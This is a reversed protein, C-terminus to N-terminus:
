QLVNKIILQPTSTGNWVNINLQAILDISDGVKIQKDLHGQRFAIANTGPEFVLKLHDQNQGLLRKQIVKLKKFYFIPHPNGLGFPELKEILRCNKISLASLKMEADVEISAEPTYDTLKKNIFTTLKKQLKKLNETKISFGAAQSHGGLDIFLDSFQRLAEIINLEPISRCSGKALGDQTSVAIAPLFYDQTLRGAILGIIGSHFSKDIVFLLKQSSDLNDKALQYSDSQLQQRDSNLDQSIQAYKNALNPSTACLLRLADMPNSLRGVANIRPGLTFGLSGSTISDPKLNSIAMLKQLGFNKTKSFAKLGHAVISRNIDTLPLCDTVTALAALALDAGPNIRNSVFWSLSAACVQTSHVVAVAKPKTKDPLHHDIIIFDSKIKKFEKGAVIGNDVTIVLDYNTKLRQYSDTSFGYGDVQRDPIFPTVNAKKQNLASWLLATSCIGDVDYDGYILIKQQKLVAQNIRALAKDVQVSSLGFDKANLDLPSSPKLFSNIDTISRNKLLLSIIQEPNTQHDIIKKSKLILKM